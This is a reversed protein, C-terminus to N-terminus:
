RTDEKPNIVNLVEHQNWVASLSRIEDVGIPTIIYLTVNFGKIEPSKRNKPTFFLVREGNYRKDIVFFASSRHDGRCDLSPEYRYPRADCTRSIRDLFSPLPCGEGVFPLSSFRLPRGGPTGFFPVAPSLAKDCAVLRLRFHVYAHEEM